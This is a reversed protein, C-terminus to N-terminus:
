YKIKYNEFKDLDELQLLYKSPRPKSNSNRGQSFLGLKSINQQNIILFILEVLEARTKRYRSFSTREIRKLEYSSLGGKLETHWKQFSRDNDNYEVDCLAILIGHYKNLEVSKQMSESDNLILLHSNSKIAHSKLDWNISRKMDFKVNGVKDGPFQFHDKLSKNVLLEFYFGFWEMQKWNYNAEKLELISSKGDWVKPLHKLKESILEIDDLYKKKM